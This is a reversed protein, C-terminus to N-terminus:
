RRLPAWTRASCHGVAMEELDDDYAVMIAAFTAYKQPEGLACKAGIVYRCKADIKLELHTALKSAKEDRSQGFANLRNFEASVFYSQLEPVRSALERINKVRENSRKNICVAINLAAVAAICLRARQKYAHFSISRNVIRIIM